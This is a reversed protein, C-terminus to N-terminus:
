AALDRLLSGDLLQARTSHYMGLRQCAYAHFDFGRVSSTRSQILGWLAWHLHSAPMYALGALRLQEVIGASLSIFAWVRCSIM